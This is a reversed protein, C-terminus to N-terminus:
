PRAHRGGEILASDNIRQNLDISLAGTWILHYVGSRAHALTPAGILRAAEGMSIGRAAAKLVEPLQTAGANMPHYGPHKFNALWTLNRNVLPSLENCIAYGWGVEQCVDRTKAFQELVKDKMLSSPKVDYVVQTGDAHLALYDPVHWSRDAFRMIMPQAAIAVIDHEFDLQRLAAAEVLSEHWVHAAVRSFYYYGIYNRQRPYRHATRVPNGLYVEERLLSPSAIASIQSEVENGPQWTIAAPLAAPRPATIAVSDEIREHDRVNCSHAYFREWSYLSTTERM